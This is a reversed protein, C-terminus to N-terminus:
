ARRRPRTVLLVGFGVVVVAGAVPWVPAIGSSEEGTAVAAAPSAGSSPVGGEAVTFGFTGSLAHGDSSTSRWDVRYGGAPLDGALPQVVTTGVVEAPGDAAAAGDPGTVTVLTGLPLPEGTFELEVSPPAAVTTSGAPTTDVLGDHAHAPRPLALLLAATATLM